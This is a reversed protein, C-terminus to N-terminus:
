ITLLITDEYVKMTSESANGVFYEDLTSLLIIIKVIGEHFPTVIQYVYDPSM